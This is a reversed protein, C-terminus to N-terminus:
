MSKPRSIHIYRRERISPGLDDIVRVRVGPGSGMYTAVWACQIVRAMTTCQKTAQM